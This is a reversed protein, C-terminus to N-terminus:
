RSNEPRSLRKIVKNAADFTLSAVLRGKALNALLPGLYQRQFEYTNKVTLPGFYGTPQNNTLLFDFGIEILFLQWNEVEEGRDGFRITKTVTFPAIEQLAAQNGTSVSVAPEEPTGRLVRNVEARLANRTAAGVFGTGSSFGIASLAVAMKETQFRQVAEETASDFIGTVAVPYNLLILLAQLKQVDPGGVGRGMNRGPVLDLSIKIAARERATPESFTPEGSIPTPPAASSQPAPTPRPVGPSSAPVAPVAVGATRPIIFTFTRTQVAGAQSQALLSCSAITEAAVPPLSLTTVEIFQSVTSSTEISTAGVTCTIIRATAPLNTVSIVVASGRGEPTAAPAVQSVHVDGIAFALPTAPPSSGAPLTPTPSPFPSPSSSPTPSSSPPPTPSPTPSSSPTPSPTLTPSPTPTPPPPLPSDTEDNDNSDSCGPDSLDVFGDGDNDAGDACQSPTVGGGEPNVVGFTTLHDISAGMFLSKKDLYVLSPINVWAGVRSDWFALAAHETSGESGSAFPMELLAPVRLSEVAGDANTVRIDYALDQVRTGFTRVPVNFTPQISVTILGHEAASGAPLHLRVGEVELTVDTRADAVVTKGKPVLDKRSALVLEREGSVQDFRVPVTPSVYGNEGTQFTAYLTWIDEHDYVKIRVRGYDDTIGEAFGGHSSWGWVSAGRVPRGDAFRVVVPITNDATRFTFNMDATTGLDPVILHRAEPNVLGEGIGSAHVAYAGSGVLAFYEGRDDTMTFGDAPMEPGFLMNRLRVLVNAAANGDPTRVVGTLVARASDFAIDRRVVRAGPEVALTARTERPIIGSGLTAHVGLMWTGASPLRLVYTGSRSAYAAEIWEGPRGAFVRVGRVGSIPVDGGDTRVMAQGYLVIEEAAGSATPIASLAVIVAGVFGFAAVIVSIREKQKM